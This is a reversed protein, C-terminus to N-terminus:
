LGHEEPGILKIMISYYVLSVINGVILTVYSLIAGSKLQSKEEM